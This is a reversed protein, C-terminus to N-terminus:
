RAPQVFRSRRARPTLPLTAPPPYRRTPLTHEVALQSGARRRIAWTPPFLFAGGLLPWAPAATTPFASHPISSSSSFSSSDDDDEYDYDTEIECEANMIRCEANMRRGEDKM